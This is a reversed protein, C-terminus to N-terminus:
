RPNSMRFFQWKLLAISFRLRRVKEIEETRVPPEPLDSWPMCVVTKGYLTRCQACPEKSNTMGRVDNDGCPLYREGVLRSCYSPHGDLFRDRGWHGCAHYVHEMRCMTVTDLSYGRPFSTISDNLASLSFATSTLSRNQKHVHKTKYNRFKASFFIDLCSNDAAGESLPVFM